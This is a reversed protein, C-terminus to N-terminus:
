IRRAARLARGTVRMLPVVGERLAGKRQENRGYILRISARIAKGLTEDYPQWWTDAMRSPEWSLLKINV